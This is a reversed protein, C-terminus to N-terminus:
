QWIKWPVQGSNWVKNLAEHERYTDMAQFYGEHRYAMLQGDAALREMPEREMICADGGTLYDFVGPEFM